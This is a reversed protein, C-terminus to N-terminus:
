HASYPLQDWAGDDGVLLAARARVPPPGPQADYQAILHPVVAIAAPSVFLTESADADADGAVLWMGRQDILGSIADRFLKRVALGHGAALQESSLAIRYWLRSATPPPPARREVDM